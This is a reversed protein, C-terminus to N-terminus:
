FQLMAKRKLHAYEETTIKGEDHLKALKAVEDAASYGEFRRQAEQSEEILRDQETMVKPRSNMYILAGIIPLIFLLFIWGAKEGGTLDSRRFIDGFITIVIWIALFWFFFALMGWLLDAFSWEALM